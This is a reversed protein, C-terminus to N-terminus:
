KGDNMEGKCFEPPDNVLGLHERAARTVCLPCTQSDCKGTACLLNRTDLSIGKDVWVNVVETTARNM